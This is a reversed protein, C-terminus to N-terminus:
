FPQGPTSAASLYEEEERADGDCLTPGGLEAELAAAAM